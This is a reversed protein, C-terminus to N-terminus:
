RKDVSKMKEGRDTQENRPGGMSNIALMQSEQPGQDWNERSWRLGQGLLNSSSPWAKRVIVCQLMRFGQGFCIKDGTMALNNIM